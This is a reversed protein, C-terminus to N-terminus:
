MITYKGTQPAADRKMAKETYEELIRKIEAKAERVKAETPGEILLFLKREGEPVETRPPVYVGKTTVAAGTLENLQAITDRHTVQVCMGAAHSLMMTYTMLHTECGIHGNMHKSHVALCPHSNLSLGPM